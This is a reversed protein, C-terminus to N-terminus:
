QLNFFNTRGRKPNLQETPVRQIPCPLDTGDTVENRLVYLHLRVVPGVFRVFFYSMEKEASKVNEAMRRTLEPKVAAFYHGATLPQDKLFPRVMYAPYQRGYISRRQVRAEPITDM